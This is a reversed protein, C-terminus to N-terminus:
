ITYLGTKGIIGYFCGKIILFAKKYKKYKIFYGFEISKDKLYQYCFQLLDKGTLFKKALLIHNRSNYFTQRLSGEGGSSASVKHWIKASPVFVIKYKNRKVRICYDLDEMYLFYSEDFLGTDKIVKKSLLICCGWVCDIEENKRFQGKDIVRNDEDKFTLLRNKMETARAFWITKPKDAYYIMPSTIGIKADKSASTVLHTLFHKDVFTDNNLLLVYDANQKMAYTIGKNSGGSFGLNDKNAILKVDTNNQPFAKQLVELSENTSGNDVLIIKYNKYAIKKLSQICAITDKYGNWNLIIISVSPQKM